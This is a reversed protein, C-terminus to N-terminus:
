TDQADGGELLQAPCPQVAIVGPLPRSWPRTTGLCLKPESRLLILLVARLRRGLIWILGGPSEKGEPQSFTFLGMHLLAYSSRPELGLGSAATGGRYNVPWHVLFM